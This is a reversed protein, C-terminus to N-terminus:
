RGERGKWEEGYQRHVKRDQIEAGLKYLSVGWKKKSGKYRKEIKDGWMAKFRQVNVVGM